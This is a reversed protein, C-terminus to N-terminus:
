SSNTPTYVGNAELELHRVPRLLWLRAGGGARNELGYSDGFWNKRAYLGVEFTGQRQAYAAPVLLGASLLCPLVLARLKM